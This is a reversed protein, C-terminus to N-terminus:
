QVAAGISCIIITMYLSMPHKWKHDVERQLIAREEEDLTELLLANEADAALRAGKQLVPLYDIMGKEVAFQEVDRELIEVPIGAM